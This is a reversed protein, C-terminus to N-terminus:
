LRGSRDLESLLASTTSGAGLVRARDLDEKHDIDRRLRSWGTADDLDPSTLPIAGANVHREFSGPGFGPRLDIARGMLATTGEGGSDPLTVMPNDVLLLEASALMDTVDQPRVCPLDGVLVVVKTQPEVSSLGRTIADNLGSGPDPEFTVWHPLDRAWSNDAVVTIGDVSESRSCAIMVDAAFARTLLRRSADPVGLRSKAHSLQKLPIIVRWRSPGTPM